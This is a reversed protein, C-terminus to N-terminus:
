GRRHTASARARILIAEALRRGLERSGLGPPLDLALPTRFADPSAATWTNALHKEGAVWATHFGERLGAPSIPGCGEIELRDIRVSPIPPLAPTEGAEPRAPPVGASSVPPQSTPQLQFKM